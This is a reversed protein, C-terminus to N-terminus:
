DLPKIMINKFHVESGPDHGQIAVTGHDIFRGPRDAPTQYDDPETYDCTVKGNVKVIVHKGRVIVKQTYWENDRVASHNMVDKVAYLGGTKRADAHTQNVQAEYGKNPWGEEQYETHFYMGSNGHPKTMIDCKWEFDKFDAGHVHGVYFAHARPGKVIMTGDSVSFTDPNESVKWGTMDRGNFLSLWGDNTAVEEARGATVVSCLLLLSLTFRM